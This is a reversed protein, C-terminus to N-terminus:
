DRSTYSCCLLTLRGNPTWVLTISALGLPGKVHSGAVILLFFDCVFECVCVGACVFMFEYM